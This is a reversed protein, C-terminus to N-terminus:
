KQTHSAVMQCLKIFEQEDLTNKMLNIPKYVWQINGVEYGKSSDIRDLSANSHSPNAALHLGVGTLACKRDQKLFLAWIDNATCSVPISRAAAKTKIRTWTTSSLEGVGQYHASKSFHKRSQYSASARTQIGYKRLHSYVVGRGVGLREAIEDGTLKRKIYLDILQEKSISM